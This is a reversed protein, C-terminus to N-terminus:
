NIIICGGSGPDFVWGEPCRTPSQQADAPVGDPGSVRLEGPEPTATPLVSPVVFSISQSWAGGIGTQSSHAQMVDDIMNPVGEVTTSLLDLLAMCSSPMAGPPFFPMWSVILDILRAYDAYSRPTDVWGFSEACSEGLIDILTNAVGEEVEFDDLCGGEIRTVDGCEPIPPRDTIGAGSLDGGLGGFRASRRDVYSQCSAPLEGSQQAGYIALQLDAQQDANSMDGEWGLEAGCAQADLFELGYDLCFQNVSGGGDVYALVEGFIAATDESSQLEDGLRAEAACTRALELFFSEGEQGTPAQSNDANDCDGAPSGIDVILPNCGAQTNPFLAIPSAGTQFIFCAEPLNESNAAALAMNNLYQGLDYYNSVTMQVGLVEACSNYAAVTEHLPSYQQSSLSAEALSSCLTPDYACALRTFQESQNYQAVFSEAQNFRAVFSEAQNYRATLSEAQNFRETPPGSKCLEPSHICSSSLVIEAKLTNPISSLSYSENFQIYETVLALSHQCPTSLEEGSQGAYALVFGVAALADWQTQIRVQSLNENGFSDVCTEIEGFTQSIHSVLPQTGAIGDTGWIGAAPNFDLYIQPASGEPLEEGDFLPDLPDWIGNTPDDVSVPDSDWVWLSPAERAVGDTGWIGVLPEQFGVIPNEFAVGDVGWIGQSHGNLLGSQRLLQPTSLDAGEQVVILEVDTFPAVSDGLCYLRNPYQDLVQCGFELSAQNNTQLIARFSGAPVAGPTDLSVMMQGTGEYFSVAVLEVPVNGEALPVEDQPGDFWEDIDPFWDDIQPINILGARGAVFLTAGAVGAFIALRLLNTFFRSLMGPSRYGPIDPRPQTGLREDGYEDEKERGVYIRKPM